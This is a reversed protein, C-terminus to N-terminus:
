ASPTNPDVPAPTPDPTPTAPTEDGQLRAVAADLATFDLSAAAPQNKLAAIEAEINSLGATIAQVDADLHTQDDTMNDIKGEIRALM